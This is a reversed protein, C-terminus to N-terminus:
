ARGVEGLLAAYGEVMRELTFDRVVRDRAREGIRRRVDSQDALSVLAEALPIVAGPPVIMGEEGNVLMERVAGVDTAVVPVGCAMAELLVLPFTEVVPYSCLVSADAARLIDSVDSRRGMFRVFEELSRERTMQRLRGAETGEGVILFLFDRRSRAIRSAAEILMAHNKEPRLAAVMAVAFREAPISLARRLAAREEDSRAPRFRGTDVGNPIVCVKGREIRERNVLHEAHANALAIVREYSGLVLRDSWSFSSTKGWLGTSHVAVLRHKLGACRSAIAGVCLADHHDLSLLVGRRSGRLASALRACACPDFRFRAIRSIVPIGNGAIEIGIEGPEHLCLVRVAYGRQPLGLALAEIVREAGGTVLTSALIEIRPSQRLAEM